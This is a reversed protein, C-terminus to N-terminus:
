GVWVRHGSLCIRSGSPIFPYFETYIKSSAQLHVVSCAKKEAYLGMFNM